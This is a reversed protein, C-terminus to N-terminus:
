VLFAMFFVLKTEHTQVRDPSLVNKSAVSSNKTILKLHLEYIQLRMRSEVKNAMFKMILSMLLYSSDCSLRSSQKLTLPRTM